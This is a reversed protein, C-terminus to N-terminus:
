EGDEKNLRAKEDPDDELWESYYDEYKEQISLKNARAWDRSAKNTGVLQCEQLEDRQIEDKQLPKFGFRAKWIGMKPVVQVYYTKNKQLEASMFDANEGIVMFLHKGEDVDYYLKKKAALVGILEISSGKIEYVTSQIAFGVVSPRFFVVRAKGKQLVQPSQKEDIVKMNSVKGACGSLYISVVIISILSLSKRMNM